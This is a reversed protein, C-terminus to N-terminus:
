TKLRLSKVGGSTNVQVFSANLDTTEVVYVAYLTGNKDIIPAGGMGTAADAQAVLCLEKVAGSYYTRLGSFQTPFAAGYTSPDRLRIDSPIAEGTYLFIDPM